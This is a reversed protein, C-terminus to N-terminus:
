AVGRGADALDALIQASYNVTELPQPQGSAGYGTKLFAAVNGPGWNYAKLALEWTGFQRYLQALFRAAYSIASYPEWPDADPHWRPVIQAVGSAGSAANFAEPSFRSEQWLLRVLLDTPIGAAVEAARAHAVLEVNQPKYSDEIWRSGMFRYGTLNYALDDAAGLPDLAPAGQGALERLAGLAVLAVGLMVLQRRM